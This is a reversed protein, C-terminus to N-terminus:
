GNTVALADHLAIPPRVDKKWTVVTNGRSTVGNVHNLYFGKAPVTTPGTWLNSEPYLGRYETPTPVQKRVGGVVAQRVDSLLIAYLRRDVGGVPQGSLASPETLNEGSVSEFAVGSVWRPPADTGDPGTRRGLLVFVARLADDVTIRRFSLNSIAAGDVALAVLAAKDVHKILVDEVVVNRFATVSGTGFKVGNARVSQGVTSLRVVAGDVGKASYSKFCIADDDSSVAVREILVGHSDVVDIGDRNAYIRSDVTVDAILLGDIEDPVIAWTASDRVHLNRIIVDQSRTLAMLAPRSTGGEIGWAPKGGNGDITGGGEIRVHATNAATVLGRNLLGGSFPTGAADKRLEPYGADDTSGLLVADQNIWLTMDSHLLLAGTLFVGGALFVTGGKPVENIARQIAATDDRIGDGTAGYPPQRVDLVKGPPTSVPPFVMLNDIRVTGAPGPGVGFFLQDVTSVGADRFSWRPQLVAGPAPPAFRRGDVYVEFRRAPVDLVLKVTYWERLAVTTLPHATAGDDYVLASGKFQISAAIGGAADRVDLAVKAGSLEDTRVNAQVVVVGAQAAFPRIATAGAGGDRHALQLSRDEDSPVAAVTAGLPKDNFQDFLVYGVSPAPNGRATVNDVFLTGASGTRVGASFRAIGTAAATFPMATRVQQGDIILDYKRDATNLVARLTYWRGPDAPAFGEGAADVFRGHSVGVTAAVLGETSALEFVDYDASWDKVQVRAQVEVVGEVSPFDRHAQIAAAGAPRTIRLSRDVTDPFAAVAPGGAAAAVWGPAAAGPAVDNFDDALSFAGAAPAAPMFVPSGPKAGSKSSCGSISVVMLLAALTRSRM